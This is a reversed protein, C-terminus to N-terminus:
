LATGGRPGVAEAQRNRNKKDAASLILWLLRFDQDTLRADIAAQDIKALKWATFETINM